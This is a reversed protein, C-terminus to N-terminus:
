EAKKLVITIEHRNHFLQRAGVVLYCKQLLKLALTATSAMSRKPLKLTLIALGYPKLSSAALLMMHASALADMRMDNLIVDFQEDTPLYTQATQRVHKVAPNSRIRLDLDAPDVAVVNM